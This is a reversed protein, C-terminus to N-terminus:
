GLTAFPFFIRGHFSLFRVVCTFCLPVRVLVLDVPVSPGLVPFLQIGCFRRSFCSLSRLNGKGGFGHLFRSSCLVLAVCLSKRKSDRRYPKTHSAPFFGVVNEARVGGACSFRVARDKLCLAFGDRLRPGRKIWYRCCCLM